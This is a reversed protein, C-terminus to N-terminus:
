RSGLPSTLHDCDPDSQSTQGSNDDKSNGAAYLNTSVSGFASLVLLSIVIYKSM